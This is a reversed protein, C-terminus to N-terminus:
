NNWGGRRMMGGVGRQYNEGDNFERNKQGFFFRGHMLSQQSGNCTEMALLIEDAEEQTITGEEVLAEIREVKLAYMEEHFADFFGYEEALEGFTMEKELRVEYADELSVKAYKSYIEAAGFPSAAFSMGMAGVAIVGVLALSLIKKM